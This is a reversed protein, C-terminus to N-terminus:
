RENPPMTAVAENRVGYSPYPYDPQDLSQL